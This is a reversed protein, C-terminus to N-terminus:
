GRLGLLKLVRNLESHAADLEEEAERLEVIAEEVTLGESQEGTSIYRGPSLNFDNKAADTTTILASLGDVVQWKLYADALTTIQEHALYNKPRGKTFHK